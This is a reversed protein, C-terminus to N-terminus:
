ASVRRAANPTRAPNATAAAVAASGPSATALVLVFFTRLADVPDLPVPVDPVPVADAPDDDFPLLEFPVDEGPPAPPEDDPSTM